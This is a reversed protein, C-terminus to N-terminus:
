LTASRFGCGLFQQVRAIGPHRLFAEVTHRLVPKGGIVQYQKPREGGARLGAGAAVIVAAATM